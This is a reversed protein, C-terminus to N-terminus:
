TLRQRSTLRHRRPHWGVPRPPPKRRSVSTSYAARPSRHRETLDYSGDIDTGGSFRAVGSGSVESGATTLTGSAVDTTGNVIVEGRGVHPDATPRVTGGPNSVYQGGSPRAAEVLTPDNGGGGGGNRREPAPDRCRINPVGLLFARRPQSLEAARPAAAYIAGSLRHLGSAPPTSGRLHDTGGALYM